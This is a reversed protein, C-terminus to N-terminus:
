VQPLPMLFIVLDVIASFIFSTSIHGFLDGCTGTGAYEDSWRMWFYSAPKCVLGSSTIFAVFYLGVIVLLVYCQRKFVPIAFIRLYLCLVM